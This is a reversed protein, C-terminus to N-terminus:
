SRDPVRLKVKSRPISAKDGRIARQHNMNLILFMAAGGVGLNAPSIKIKM